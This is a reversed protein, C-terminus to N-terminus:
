GNNNSATTKTEYNTLNILKKGINLYNNGDEDKLININAEEHKTNNLLKIIKDIRDM